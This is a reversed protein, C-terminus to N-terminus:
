NHGSFALTRKKSVAKNTPDDNSIHMIKPADRKQSFSTMRVGSSKM